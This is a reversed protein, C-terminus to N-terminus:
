AHNFSLRRVERNYRGRIGFKMRHPRSDVPVFVGWLVGGVGGVGGEALDGPPGGGAVVAHERVAPARGSYCFDGRRCEGLDPDAPHAARAQARDDGLGGGRRVAHLLDPRVDGGRWARIRKSGTWLIDTVARVMGEIVDLQTKFLIWAGLFAVVGGMLAYRAEMANALAAAIGYGRIDLGPELFTVYLVAPLAMGAIAGFFYIIWQDVKVVRWWGRWREMSKEDPVFTFGTHALNVKKGGVAAPIYGAVGGMGYGKDRAWNSLTINIVGGAGCFGAFAGILFYDAGEPMFMFKGTSPAFGFFGAAM